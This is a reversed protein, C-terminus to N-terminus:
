GRGSLLKDIDSQRYRSKGGIKIPTLYGKQAWRWLTSLDVDLMEAVYKPSRYTEEQQTQIDKKARAYSDAIIQNMRETLDQETIMFVTQMSM